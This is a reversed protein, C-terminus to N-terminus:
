APSGSDMDSMLALVTADHPYLLLARQLYEKALDKRGRKQFLRGLGKLAERSHPELELAREFFSQASDLDELANEHINGLSWLPVAWEPELQAAAQFEAIAADVESCIWMHTGLYIHAWADRPDLEIAKRLHGEAEPKAGSRTLFYGLERHASAYDPDLELATRFLAQAEPDDRLLVGLNFYAEEYKPDIRLARRYAQEADIAKGSNRLAVGLLSLGGPDEEIECAKKLYTEAIECDRRRIALIGLEKLALASRDDIELARKFAREADDLFGLEKTLGALRLFANRTPHTETLRRWVGLALEQQGEDELRVAEGFLEQPSM